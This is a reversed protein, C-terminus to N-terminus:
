EIIVIFFMDFFSIVVSSINGDYFSMWQIAANQFEALTLPLLSHITQMQNDYVHYPRQFNQKLISNKKVRGWFERGFTSRHYNDAGM